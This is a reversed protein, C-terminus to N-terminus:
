TTITISDNRQLIGEPCGIRDGVSDASREIRAPNDHLTNVVGDKKGNDAQEPSMYAATGLIMGVQTMAPTTMTPSQSGSPAVAAAPEM